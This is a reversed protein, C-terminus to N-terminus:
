IGLTKRLVEKIDRLNQKLDRKAIVHADCVNKDLDNKLILYLFVGLGVLPVHFALLCFWCSFLERHIVIARNWVVCWTSWVLLLLCFLAQFGSLFFVVLCILGCISLMSFIFKIKGIPKNFRYLYTYDVQMKIHRKNDKIIHM